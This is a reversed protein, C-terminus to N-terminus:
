GSKGEATTHVMGEFSRRASLACEERGDGFVIDVFEKYFGAEALKVSLAARNASIFSGSFSHVEGLLKQDGFGPVVSWLLLCEDKGIFPERSAKELLTGYYLRFKGYGLEFTEKETYGENQKLACKPEDGLSVTMIFEQLGTHKFGRVTSKARDIVRKFDVVERNLASIEFGGSSRVTLEMYQSVLPDTSKFAGTDSAKKRLSLYERGIHKRLEM